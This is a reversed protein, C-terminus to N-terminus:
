KNQKLELMSDQKVKIIGRKPRDLDITIFVVLVILLTLLVTPVYARKLSLGSSYGIISGSLMFVFFLLLLIAEPIHRQLIANREGRADIMDNLSNIYYGSIVPRPDIDAAKNAIQWLKDLLKDTKQNFARRQNTHTLDIDSILLRLDIYEEMLAAASTDFPAPLLKTHLMATGIANAEKIEAQSRNDFRQLAMNFTFGLLLALLGLIGAQIASTQEKIEKDTAQQKYKGIRFGLEYFLLIAMFLITVLFFSNIDYMIENNM